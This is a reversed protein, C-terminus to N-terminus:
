VGRCLLSVDVLVKRNASVLLYSREANGALDNRPDTVSFGAEQLKRALATCLVPVDQANGFLVLITTGVRDSKSAM